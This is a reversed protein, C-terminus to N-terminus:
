EIAIFLPYGDALFVPKGERGKRLLNRGLGALGSAVGGYPVSYLLQELADDRSETIASPVAEAQRYVIGEQYDQDYVQMRVPVPGISSIRVKLRGRSTGNLRGYLLTNRPFVHGEVRVEELLRLSVPADPQLQQDGHIVARYLGRQEEPVVSEPSEAKVTYFPNGGEEAERQQPKVPVRGQRKGSAAPAKRIPRERRSEEQSKDPIEVAEEPAPEAVGESGEGGEGLSGFDMAIITEVSRQRLIHERKIKEMEKKYRALRSPPQDTHVSDEPDIRAIPTTAQYRRISGAALVLLLVLGLVGVSLPLWHKRIWKLGKRRKTEMAMLM